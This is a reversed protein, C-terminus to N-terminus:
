LHHFYRGRNLRNDPDLMRKIRKMIAFDPGPAPWLTAGPKDSEACAEIVGRFNQAAEITPAFVYTVGNGARGIAPLPTSEVTSPVDAIPTSLRVIAGAPHTDLFRSPAEATSATTPECDGLAALERAYRDIVAENGGTDVIVSWRDLGLMLSAAPNLLDLSQPQLVSQRIARVASAAAAASDFSLVFRREVAPMPILKFNVTAIAALTGYSGIILKAMDLGAVNKVVMGGSQILKGDVTAFTMGIVLDRATGYLRRRPGSSNAAVVGGATARDAFVPDLPIMQRNAALLATLDRWPIGAEVSITLDRPEYNLVRTLSTSRIQIDAPARPGAYRSKSAAGDLAISSSSALAEALDAPTAPTLITSPLNMSYYM